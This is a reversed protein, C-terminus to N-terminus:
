RFPGSLTQLMGPLKEIARVAHLNPLGRCMKRVASVPVERGEPDDWAEVWPNRKKGSAAELENAAKLAEPTCCGTSQAELAVYRLFFSELPKLSPPCPAALTAGLGGEEVWGLTDLIVVTCDTKATVTSARHLMHQESRHGNALSPPVLAEEGLLCVQRYGGPGIVTGLGSQQEAEEREEEERRLEEQRQAERKAEEAERKKLAAMMDSLAFSAQPVKDKKPVEETM